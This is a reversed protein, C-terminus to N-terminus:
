VQSANKNEEVSSFVFVITYMQPTPTQDYCFFNHFRGCCRTMVKDMRIGADVMEQMVFAAERHLGEMALGSLLCRWSSADIANQSMSEESAEQSRKM